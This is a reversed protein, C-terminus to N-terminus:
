HTHDPMDPMDPMDPALTGGPQVRPVDRKLDTLYEVYYTLDASDVKALKADLAKLRADSREVNGFEREYVAGVFLYELTQQEKLGAPATLAADIAALAERRLKTARAGDGAAEYMYALSRLLAIRAPEDLKRQAYSRELAAIKELETPAQPGPRYAEALRQAIASKENDSLKDADEIFSAFGSEPCFWIMNAAAHPWFVQDYKSPFQYIYTGYSNPVPVKCKAGAKIPDDIEQESLTIASACFSCAGLLLALVFVLRNM